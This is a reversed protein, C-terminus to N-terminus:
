LSSKGHRYGTQRKWIESHVKGRWLSFWRVTFYFGYPILQWKGPFQVAETSVRTGEPISTHTKELGLSILFLCVSPPLRLAPFCGSFTDLSVKCHIWPYIALYGINSQWTDKSRKKTNGSHTKEQNWQFSKRKMFQILPCHLLLWVSDTTVQRPVASGGNVSRGGWSHLCRRNPAALIFDDANLM